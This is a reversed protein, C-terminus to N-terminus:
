AKTSAAEENLLDSFLDILDHLQLLDGQWMKKLFNDIYDHCLKFGALGSVRIKDLIPNTRIKM